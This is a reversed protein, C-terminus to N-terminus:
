FTNLYSLPIFKHNVCINQNSLFLKNNMTTTAQIKSQRLRKTSEIHM